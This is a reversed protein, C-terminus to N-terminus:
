VAPVPPQVHAAPAHAQLKVVQPEAHTSGIVLVDLQPVHPCAHGPAQVPPAHWHTVGPPPLRRCFPPKSVLTADHVESSGLMTSVCELRSAAPHAVDPEM